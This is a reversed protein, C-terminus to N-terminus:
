VEIILDPNVSKREDPYGIPNCVVRTGNITYDFENHTHGHCWLKIKDSFMDELSSAYAGNMYSDNAFKPHISQYSPAHHTVVICPLESREVADSIFFKSLTHEQVTQMIPLKFYNEANDRCKILRYDNMGFMVKNMTLPCNRNMDTWLTTGIFNFGNIVVSENNLFHINGHGELFARIVNATDNFTHKYHEHNGMIYIVHDFKAACGLIFQGETQINRATCIDGALILVEAGANTIVPPKGFECHVDSILQIKM